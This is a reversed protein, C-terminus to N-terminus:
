EAAARHDALVQEALKGTVEALHDFRSTFTGVGQTASRVEVILNQMEAEPIRAQVLDWGPWGDRADFGLIQGRRQSVIANIRATADSPVTIEVAMGVITEESPPVSGAKSTVIVTGTGPKPGGGEEGLALTTMRGGTDKPPKASSEYRVMGKPPVKM